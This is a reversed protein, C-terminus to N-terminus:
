EGRFNESLKAKARNREKQLLGAPFKAEHEGILQAARARNGSALEAFAADLLRTEEALTSAQPLAHPPGAAEVAPVFEVESPREAKRADREVAPPSAPAEAVRAPRTTAEKADAEETVLSPRPQAPVAAVDAAETRQPSPLQVVVQPKGPADLLIGVGPIAIAAALGLKIGWSAGLAKAFFGTTAASTAAASTTAAMGNGVAVGAALLRRRVREKADAPPLDGRLAQELVSDDPDISM